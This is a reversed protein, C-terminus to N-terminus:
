AASEGTFSRIAAEETDVLRILADFGSTELAQKVTPNAACLKLEGRHTKLLKATRVIIRLGASSAYDVHQLNLVVQKIPGKAIADLEDGAPGATVSDLRGAMEVVVVQAVTKSSVQM